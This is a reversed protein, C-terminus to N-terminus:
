RRFHDPFLLGARNPDFSGITMVLHPVLGFDM